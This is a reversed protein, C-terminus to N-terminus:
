EFLPLLLYNTLMTAMTMSSVMIMSMSASFGGIFVLLTLWPKGYALPLRLVFIDAAHIPLGKILGAMAIPLVFINMLFLYLPFMWMATLIHKENSNEVVTVHFQRPLFFVASMSLILFTMWRMFSVTSEPGCTKDLHFSTESFRQFVDGMGNFVFYTVFIGACLFTFLKVVSEMAVATMMGQHRETPDLRRVGFAITFAIMLGLFLPDVFSLM